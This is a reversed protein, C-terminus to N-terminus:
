VSSRFGKLFRLLAYVQSALSEITGDNDIVFDARARMESAPLQGNIRNQVQEPTTDDRNVVRQIRLESPADVVIVADLDDIGSEFLLAAEKVILGVHDEEQRRIFSEFAERVAPHVIANMQLRRDDSSFIEGALYARNLSGDDLWTDPGFTAFLERKVNADTEMLRRAEQDAYFVKAGSKELLKCVATKGSGIGGTVGIVM